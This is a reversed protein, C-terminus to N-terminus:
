PSSTRRGVDPRRGPRIPPVPRTAHAPGAAGGGAPHVAGTAPPQGIGRDAPAPHRDPQAGAAPAQWWADGFPDCRTHRVVGVFSRRRMGLLRATAQPDSNYFQGQRPSDIVALNHSIWKPVCCCSARGAPRAPDAQSGDLPFTTIAKQAALGRCPRTRTGAPYREHPSSLPSTSSRGCVCGAPAPCGASVTSGWVSRM